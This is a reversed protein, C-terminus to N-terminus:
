RARSGRVVFRSPSEEQPVRLERRRPTRIMELRVIRRRKECDSLPISLNLVSRFTVRSDGSSVSDIKDISCATGSVPRNRRSCRCRQVASTAVASSCCAHNELAESVRCTAIRPYIIAAVLERRNRTGWEATYFPFSELAGRIQKAALITTRPICLRGQWRPLM